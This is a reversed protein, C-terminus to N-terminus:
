RAAALRADLSALPEHNLSWPGRWKKRMALQACRWGRKGPPQHSICSNLITFIRYDNRQNLEEERTEPFGVLALGGFTRLM